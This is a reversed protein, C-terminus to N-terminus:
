KMLNIIFYIRNTVYQNELKCDNTTNKTQTRRIQLWKFPLQNQKLSNMGINTQKFKSKNTILNSQDTKKNMTKQDILGNTKQDLEFQDRNYHQHSHNQYLHFSSLASLSENNMISKNQGQEYNLNPYNLEYTQFEDHQGISELYHLYSQNHEHHHYATQKSYTSYINSPNSKIQNQNYMSNSISNNQISLNTNWSLNNFLPCSYDSSTSLMSSFNFNKSFCTENPYIYSNSSTMYSLNSTSRTQQDLSCSTCEM